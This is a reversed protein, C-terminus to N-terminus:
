KAVEMSNNQQWVLRGEAYRYPQCEIEHPSTVCVAQFGNLSLGYIIAVADDHRFCLPSSGDWKCCKSFYDCSTVYKPGEHTFVLIYCYKKKNM